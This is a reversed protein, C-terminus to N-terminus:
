LFQIQKRPKVFKSGKLHNHQDIVPIWTGTAIQDLVYFSGLLTVPLTILVLVASPGCSLLLICWAIPLTIMDGHEFDKIVGKESDSLLMQEHTTSAYYHDGWELLWTDLTDQLHDWAAVQEKNGAAGFHNNNTLLIMTSTINDKSLFDREVDIDLEEFLIPDKSDNMNHVYIGYADRWWCMNQHKPLYDCMGLTANIVEKTLNAVAEHKIKYTSDPRKAVVLVAQSLAYKFDKQRSFYSAATMKAVLSPSGPPPELSWHTDKLFQLGQTVGLFLIYGWILVFPLSTAALFHNCPNACCCFYKKPTADDDDDDDDYQRPTLVDLDSYGSSM